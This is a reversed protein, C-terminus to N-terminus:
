LYVYDNHKADERKVALVIYELESLSSKNQKKNINNAWERAFFDDVFKMPENIVMGDKLGSVFLKSIIYKM